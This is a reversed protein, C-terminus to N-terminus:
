FMRELASTRRDLRRMATFIKLANSAGTYTPSEISPAIVEGDQDIAFEV